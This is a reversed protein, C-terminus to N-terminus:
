WLRSSSHQWHILMNLVIIARNINESVIHPFQKIFSARCILGYIFCSVFHMQNSMFSISCYISYIIAIYGVLNVALFFYCEDRTMGNPKLWQLSSLFGWYYPVLSVPFTQTYQLPPSPINRHLKWIVDISQYIFVRATPIPVPFLSTM